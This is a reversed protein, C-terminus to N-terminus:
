IVELETDLAGASKLSQLIAIVDRSTAGIANMARVLEEITAGQKLVVNRAQEERVGVGVKPVATTTGSSLPAPQSVEFTTQIEVTLGGHM